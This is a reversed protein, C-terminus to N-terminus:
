LEAREMMWIRDPVDSSRVMKAFSVLPDQIFMIYLTLMHLLENKLLKIGSNKM